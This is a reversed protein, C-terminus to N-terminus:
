RKVVCSIVVTMALSVILTIILVVLSQTGGEFSGQMMQQLSSLSTGIFVNMLTTPTYAIYSTCYARFSVCTAGLVLNTANVPVIPCMRFLACTKFGENLFSKDLANIIKYKMSMQEALSRFVYRGICFAIISGVWTGSMVILVGVPLSKYLKEEFVEHIIYGSPLSMMLGPASLSTGLVCYLALLFSGLEKNEVMWENYVELKHIM